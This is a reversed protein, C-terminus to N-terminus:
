VAGAAFRCAFQSFSGGPQTEDGYDACLGTMVSLLGVLRMYLVVQKKHTGMVVVEPTSTADFEKDSILLM